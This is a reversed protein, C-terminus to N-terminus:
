TMEFKSDLHPSAGRSLAMKIDFHPWPVVQSAFNSSTGHSLENESDVLAGTEFKLLAVSWALARNLLRSTFVSWALARKVDLHSSLMIQAALHSCVGRSLRPVIEMSKSFSNFKRSIVEM